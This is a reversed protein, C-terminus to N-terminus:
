FKMLILVSPQTGMGVDAFSLGIIIRYQDTDNESPDRVRTFSVCSGSSMVMALASAFMITHCDVKPTVIKGM